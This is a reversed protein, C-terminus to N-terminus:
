RSGPTVTNTAPDIRTLQSVGWSTTWVAGEGVAIGGGERPIAIKAVVKAGRPLPKSPASASASVAGVLAIACALAASARTVRNLRKM